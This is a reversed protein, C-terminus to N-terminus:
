RPTARARAATQRAPRDGDAPEDTRPFDDEIPRMRKLTGLLTRRKIPTTVLSEGQKRIRVETGRLELERPIWIAQNRGHRVLRAVPKSAADIVQCM